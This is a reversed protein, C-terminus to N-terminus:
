IDGRARREEEGGPANSPQHGATMEGQTGALRAKM